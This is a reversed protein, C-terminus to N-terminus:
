AFDGFLYDHHTLQAVLEYQQDLLYNKMPKIDRCEVLLRSFRFVSHDIGKLVEIEAGEVDLSFFDIQAPAEAEILISQLTKAQVVFNYQKDDSRMYPTGSEAHAKPNSLDSELNLPTTMLNAYRLKVNPQDFEFSVCAAHVVHNQESRSKLCKRYNSKVPEVLVGRWGRSREYYITNSQNFGDNAGIEVYYGDDFDIYPEVKRDLERLGFYIRDPFYKELYKEFSQHAM